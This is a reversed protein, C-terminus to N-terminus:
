NQIFELLTLLIRRIARRFPSLKKRLVTFHLSIPMILPLKGCTVLRIYCKFCTLHPRHLNHACLKERFWCTLPSINKGYYKRQKETLTFIMYLKGTVDRVIVYYSSKFIPTFGITRLLRIIEHQDHIKFIIEEIEKFTLTWEGNNRNFIISMFACDSNFM